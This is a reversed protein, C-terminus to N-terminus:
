FPSCHFLDFRDYLGELKVFYLLFERGGTDSAHRDGLYLTESALFAM